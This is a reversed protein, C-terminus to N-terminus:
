FDPVVLSPLCAHVLLSPTIRPFSLMGHNWISRIAIKFQWMDWKEGGARELVPLARALVDQAYHGSPICTSIKAFAGHVDSPFGKVERKQFEPDSFLALISTAFLQATRDIDPSPSSSKLAMEFLEFVDYPVGGRLGREDDDLISFDLPETSM